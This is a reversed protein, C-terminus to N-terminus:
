RLPAFSDEIKSYQLDFNLRLGEETRVVECKRVWGLVIIESGVKMSAAKPGDAPQFYLYSLRQMTGGDWGLPTSAARIRFVNRPDPHAQAEEITTHLVISKNVAYQGFYRNLEVRADESSPDIRLRQLVGAPASKLLLEAPDLFEKAREPFPLSPAADLLGWGQGRPAPAPAPAFAPELAPGLDVISLESYWATGTVFGHDTGL